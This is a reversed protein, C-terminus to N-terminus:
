RAFTAALEGYIGAFDGRAGLLRLNQALGGTARFFLMAEPPPRFKLLKSMNKAGYLKLEKTTTDEAYDYDSSRLPRGALHLIEALVARAEHEPLEVSFGVERCLALADFSEQKMAGLFLKRNAELFSASFGKISGFDLLGLRGDPLVLYNGPHPDGQILGQSFFSAYTGRILLRSVRLREANSPASAVFDRLTIGELLELTLVKETTRELVPAPVVLEPFDTVAARMSAALEAERAYDLELLFQERLERYYASGDLAKGTLAVTKVLAGMNELDSKVAAEIGPYQVKVVVQRGDALTARHVQGLSAAAMPTQEFRAFAREPPAGLEEEVVKAVAAYPLSPAQNQLRGIVARLEPTLMDADMSLVQGLKMAMGKMEGLTAVLREATDTGFVDAEKGVLRKVGRTLVDTGVSATLGALKRFRHLRGGPPATKPDDSMSPDLSSRKYHLGRRAAM